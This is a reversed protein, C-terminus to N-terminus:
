LLFLGPVSAEIEAMNVLSFAVLILVRRKSLYYRTLINEALSTQFHENNEFLRKGLVFLDSICYPM